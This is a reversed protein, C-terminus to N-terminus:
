DKTMNRIMDITVVGGTMQIFRQAERFTMHQNPDTPESFKVGLAQAIARLLAFVPPDRQWSETLLRVDHFTLARIQDPTYHFETALRNFL